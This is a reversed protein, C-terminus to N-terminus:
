LLTYAILPKNSNIDLALMTNDKEDVCFGTVYKDLIYRYLPNGQLDYVELMNGGETIDPKTRIDKFTRGWFLAYIKNQGVQVDSYGMIGNPVAYAGKDIFVPEGSSGYVIKVISKSNMNYIEVVHGLQTVMALIGNQPNYDLFSRWAQSVVTNNSSKTKAKTPIKFLRDVIIGQNNIICLRNNGSYDPVILLSDNMLDFDLTRMLKKELIIQHVQETNNIDIGTIMSKNADLVFVKGRSNFRINEVDLYELPGNGRAAFSQKLQLQPYSFRHCYFESGHLDSIIIDSDMKKVRFPYRMFASDAVFCTSFLKKDKGKFLDKDPQIDNCSGCFFIVFHFLIIRTFKIFRIYM